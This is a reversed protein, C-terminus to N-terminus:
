AGAALSGRTRCAPWFSLALDTIREDIIAYPIALPFESWLNLGIHQPLLYDRWHHGSKSRAERITELDVDTLASAALRNLVGQSVRVESILTEHRM